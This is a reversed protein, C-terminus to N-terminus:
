LGQREDAGAVREGAGVQAPRYPLLGGEVVHDPVDLMLAKVGVQALQVGQEAGRALVQNGVRGEVQQLERRAHAGQGPVVQAERRQGERWLLADRDRAVRRRLVEVDDVHRLDLLDDLA